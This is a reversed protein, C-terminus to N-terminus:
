ESHNRTLSEAAQAGKKEIPIRKRKRKEDITRDAKDNEVPLEIRGVIKPGELEPAEIKMTEICPSCKKM